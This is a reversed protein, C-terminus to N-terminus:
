ARSERWEIAPPGDPRVWRADRGRPTQTARLHDLYGRLAPEDFQRLFEALAARNIEVIEGILADRAAKSTDVGSPSSNPRSSNRRSFTSSLIM